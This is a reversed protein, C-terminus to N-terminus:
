DGDGAIRFRLGFTAYPHSKYFFYDRNDNPEVDGLNELDIYNSQLNYGGTLTLGVRNSLRFLVGLGANVGFTLSPVDRPTQTVYGFDQAPETVYGDGSGFHIMSNVGMAVFPLVKNQENSNDALYYAYNFRYTFGLIGKAKVKVPRQTEPTTNYDTYTTNYKYVAPLVLELEHWNFFRKEDMDRGFSYALAPQICSNQTIFSARGTVGYVKGIKRNYRATRKYQAEAGMSILSLAAVIAFIRM